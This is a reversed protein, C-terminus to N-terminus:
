SLQFARAIHELLCREKERTHCRRRLRDSYKGRPRTRKEGYYQYTVEWFKQPWLWLPIFLQLEEKSLPNIDLYAALARCATDGNYSTFKAVRRLFNVLDHIPLDCISYDFDVLHVTHTPTFLVNRESYDHHCICGAMQYQATVNTYESGTLIQLAERGQEWHRDIYRLFRRDFRSPAVQTQAIAKYQQLTELREHWLGPWSGWWIRDPAAPPVFGRASQHLMALVTAAPIVDSLADYHAERSDVWASMVFLHEEVDAYPAKDPTLVYRDINTMGQEYLHEKAAHIFHIGTKSQRSKKLAFIGQVSVVKFARRVATIKNPVIGFQHAAAQELTVLGGDKGISDAPQCM